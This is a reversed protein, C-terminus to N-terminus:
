LLLPHSVCLYSYRAVAPICRVGQSSGAAQMGSAHCSPQADAITTTARLEIERKIVDKFLKCLPLNNM